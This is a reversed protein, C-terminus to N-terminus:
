ALRKRVAAHLRTLKARGRHLRRFINTCDKLSALAHGNYYFFAYVDAPPELEKMVTEGLLRLATEAREIEVKTPDTASM